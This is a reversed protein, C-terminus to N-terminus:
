NGNIVAPRWSEISRGVTYGHRLRQRRDEELRRITEEAAIEGRTYWAESQSNQDFLLGSTSTPLRSSRKDIDGSSEFINPDQLQAKGPKDDWQLVPSSSKRTRAQPTDFSRRKRPSQELDKHLEDMESATMTERRLQSMSRQRPAVFAKGQVLSPRNRSETTIKNAQLLDIAASVSQLSNPLIDLSNMPIITAPLQVTASGRDISRLM